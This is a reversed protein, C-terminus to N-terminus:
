YIMTHLIRDTNKFNVKAIDKLKEEGYKIVYSDNIDKNHTLAIYTADKYKINTGITTSLTYIALKVKGQTEETLAEQGYEDLGGLTYYDYSRMTANIM